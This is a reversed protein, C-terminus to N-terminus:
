LCDAVGIQLHCALCVPIWAPLQISLDQKVSLYLVISVFFFTKIKVKKKKKFVIARIYWKEVSILVLMFTVM